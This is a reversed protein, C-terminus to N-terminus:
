LNELQNMMNDIMINAEDGQIKVKNFTKTKLGMKEQLKQGAATLESFGSKNKVIYGLRELHKAKELEINLGSCINCFTLFENINTDPITDQFLQVSNVVKQATIEKQETQTDLQQALRTMLRKLIEIKDQNLNLVDSHLLCLVGLSYNDKNIIPFGSYGVVMGGKVADTHKANEHLRCDPILIPEPSLLAYFCLSKERVNTTGTPSKDKEFGCSSMIYQTDEKMLSVLAFDSGTLNKALETYVYFQDDQNTEVINLKSVADNRGSENTTIPAPIFNM